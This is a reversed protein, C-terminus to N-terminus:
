TRHTLFPCRSRQGQLYVIWIKRSNVVRYIIYWDEAPRDSRPAPGSAEVAYFSGPQFSLCPFFASAGSYPVGLRWRDFHIVSTDCKMKQLHKIASLLLCEAHFLLRVWPMIPLFPCSLRRSKCKQKFWSSHPPTTLLYVLLLSHWRESKEWIRNKCKRHSTEYLSGKVSFDMIMGETLLCVLNSIIMSM